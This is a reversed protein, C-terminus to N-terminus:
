EEKFLPVFTRSGIFDIAKEIAGPRGMVVDGRVKGPLTSTCDICVAYIGAYICGPVACKRYARHPFRSADLSEMVETVANCEHDVCDVEYLYDLTVGFRKRPSPRATSLDLARGCGICAGKVEGSLVFKRTPFTM